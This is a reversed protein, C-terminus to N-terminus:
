NNNILEQCVVDASHLGPIPLESVIQELVVHATNDPCIFFDGGGNSIQIIGNILHEAVADYNNSEWGEMSLGMPIASLIINPHMHPGMINAGARCATIFCLSGGEYSHACIGINKISEM